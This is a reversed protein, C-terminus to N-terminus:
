GLSGEENPVAEPELLGERRLLQLALERMSVGARGARVKLAKHEAPTLDITFRKIELRKDAGSRSDRDDTLTGPSASDHLYM